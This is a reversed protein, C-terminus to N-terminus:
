SRNRRTPLLLVALLDERTWPKMLTRVPLQELRRALESNFVGGTLFVFPVAPDPRREFVDVGTLDPMMVDCIVIDYTGGRLRELGEAGSEALDVEHPKLSRRLARLIAPEDDIALIRLPGDRRPVVLPPPSSVRARGSIARPFSAVVTTGDGEIRLSGGHQEAITQSLAVRLATSTPSPPSSSRVEIAVDHEIHLVRISVLHDAAAGPPIGAAADLLLNLALQSLQVEDGVVFAGEEEFSQLHARHRIEHRALKTAAEVASQLDVIRETNESARSFRAFDQVITTIRRAGDLAEVLLERLDRQGSPLTSLACELNGRIYSLPNNIEHEVTAALQGVPALRSAELLKKDQIARERELEARHHQEEARLRARNTARRFWDYAFTFGTLAITVVIAMTIDNLHQRQEPVTVPITVGAADLVAFVVLNLFVLGTWVIGSRWGASLVAVMPVLGVVFQAPAGAGGRVITAGTLAVFILAAMGNGLLEQRGSWRAATVVAASLAFVVALLVGQLRPGHLLHEISMIACAIMGIGTLVLALQARLYTDASREQVSPHLFTQFYKQLAARGPSARPPTPDM